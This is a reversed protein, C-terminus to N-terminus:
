QEPDPTVSTTGPTERLSRMRDLRDRLTDIVPQLQVPGGDKGTLETKKRDAYKDPLLAKLRFMLLGHDYKRVTGVQVTGAHQGEDRGFVPEEWGEIARLDAIAELREAYAALALNEMEAFWPLTDRWRRVVVGSTGAALASRQIYSSAALNLLYSKQRAAIYQPRFNSGHPAKAEPGPNLEPISDLIERLVEQVAETAAIAAPGRAGAHAILSETRRRGSDMDAM